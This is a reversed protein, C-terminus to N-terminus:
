GDLIQERLFYYKLKEMALRIRTKVTGLPVDLKEAIERHSYGGFYALYLAEKQEEPLTDIAKKVKGAQIKLNTEEEPYRGNIRPESSKPMVSWGISHGDPRVDRKRLVDISKYRAISTIWTNVKSQDPNYTDAKEWINIFVEQTVEEAVASDGLIHVALSYVLRSYRDYLESLAQPHEQIVLRILSLDKLKTYDM